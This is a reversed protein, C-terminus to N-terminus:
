LQSFFNGGRLDQFQTLQPRWRNITKRGKSSAEARGGDTDAPAPAASRRSRQRRPATRTSGRSGAATDCVSGCRCPYLRVSVICRRRNRFTRHPQKREGCNRNQEQGMQLSLPKSLAAWSSRLRLSPCLFRHSFYIYM